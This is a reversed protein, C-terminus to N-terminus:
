SDLFISLRIRVFEVLMFAHAAVVLCVMGRFPGRPWARREFSSSVLFGYQDGGYQLEKITRKNNFTHYSIQLRILELKRGRLGISRCNARQDSCKSNRQPIEPRVQHPSAQDQLPAVAKSPNAEDLNHPRLKPDASVEVM